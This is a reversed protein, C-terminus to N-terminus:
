KHTGNAVWRYAFLFRIVSRDQSKKKGTDNEFSQDVWLANTEDTGAYYDM